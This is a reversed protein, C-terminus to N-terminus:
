KLRIWDMLGYRGPLWVIKYVHISSLWLVKKSLIGHHPSLQEEFPSPSQIVISAVQCYPLDHPRSDGEIWLNWTDVGGILRARNCCDNWFTSMILFFCFTTVMELMNSMLPLYFWIRLPIMSYAWTSPNSELGCHIHCLRKSKNRENDVLPSWPSGASCLFFDVSVNGPCYLYNFRCSVLLSIQSVTFWFFEVM